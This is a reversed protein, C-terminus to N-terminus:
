EKKVELSKVWAHAPDDRPRMIRQRGAIMWLYYLSYGPAAGVPHYGKPIVITDGDLITYAQDISGDATYIRQVGFGQGPNLRFHYIEEQQVEEASEEDHKHPPYSSWKGPENYTEGVLLRQASVQQGIIDHVERRWTQDGAVRVRVDEPTVIASRGTRSAGTSFSLGAEFDTTAEIEFDCGPPVYAGSAKGGFVNERQGLNQWRDAGSKLNCCGSLIVLAAEEDAPTSSKWNDGARLRLLGFRLYELGAEERDVIPIFGQGPNARYRLNM